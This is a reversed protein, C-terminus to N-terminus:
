YNNIVVTFGKFMHREVRDKSNYDYFTYEGFLRKCYSLFRKRTDGVLFQFTVKNDDLIYNEIGNNKIWKQINDKKDNTIGSEQWHWVESETVKRGVKKELLRWEVMLRGYRHSIEDSSLEGDCSLNEPSLESVLQLFKSMDEDSIHYGKVFKPKTSPLADLWKGKHYIVGAEYSKGISQAKFHKRNRM